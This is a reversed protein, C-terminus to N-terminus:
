ISSCRLSRASGYPATAGTGPVARSWLGATPASLERARGYAPRTNPFPPRHPSAPGTLRPPPPPSRPSPGPRACSERPPARCCVDPCMTRGRIIVARICYDRARIGTAAFLQGLGTSSDDRLGAEVADDAAKDGIDYARTEWPLPCQILAKRMRYTRSLSTTLWDLDMVAQFSQTTTRTSLSLGGDGGQEPGGHAQEVMTDAM